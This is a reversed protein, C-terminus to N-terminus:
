NIHTKRLETATQDLLHYLDVAQDFTTKDNFLDSWAKKWRSTSSQSDLLSAIQNSEVQEWDSSALKQAATKIQRL